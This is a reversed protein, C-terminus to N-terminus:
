QHNNEVIYFQAFLLHTFFENPNPFVVQRNRMKYRWLHWLMLLSDIIDLFTEIRINFIKIFTCSPTNSSIHSVIKRSSEKRM